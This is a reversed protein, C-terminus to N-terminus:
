DTDNSKAASKEMIGNNYGGLRDTLITM